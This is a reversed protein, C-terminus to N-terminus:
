YIGEAALKGMQALTALTRKAEDANVRSIAFGVHVMVYDGVQAKPVFSLCVEKKIGGFDVQGMPLGDVEAQWARILCGPVGLCM